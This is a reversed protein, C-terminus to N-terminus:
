HNVRLIVPLSPSGKKKGTLADGQEARHDYLHRDDPINGQFCGAATPDGCERDAGVQRLKQNGKERAHPRVSVAAFHEDNKRIGDDGKGRCHQKKAM